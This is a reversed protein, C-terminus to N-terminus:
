HDEGHSREDTSEQNFKPRWNFLMPNYILKYKQYAYRLVDVTWHTYFVFQEKPNVDLSGLIQQAVGAGRFAAKVYIYHIIPTDRKEVICFGVILDLDDTPHAIVIKIGDRDMVRNWCYSQHGYYDKDPLARAEPNSYRYSKLITSYIFNKDAEVPPRFSISM